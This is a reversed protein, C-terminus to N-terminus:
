VIICKVTQTNNNHTGTLIGASTYIIIYYNSWLNGFQPTTIINKFLVNKKGCSKLKNILIIYNRKEIKIKNKM